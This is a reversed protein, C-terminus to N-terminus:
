KTEKHAAIKRCKNCFKSLELKTPTNIKNRSTYYNRSKCGECALIVMIRKEGKKKAM